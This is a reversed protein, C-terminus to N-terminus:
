YIQFSKEHCAYSNYPANKFCKAGEYHLNVHGKDISLSQEINKPILVRLPISLTLPNSLLNDNHFMKQSFKIIQFTQSEDEHTASKIMSAAFLDESITKIAPM